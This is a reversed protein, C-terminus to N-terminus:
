KSSSATRSVKGFTVLVVKDCSQTGLARSCCEWSNGLCASGSAPQEWSSAVSHVHPPPEPLRSTRLAGWPKTCSAAPEPIGADPIAGRVGGGAELSTKCWSSLTVLIKSPLCSGGYGDSYGLLPIERFIGPPNGAQPVVCQCQKEM